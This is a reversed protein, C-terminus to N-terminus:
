LKSIEHNAECEKLRKIQFNLCQYGITGDKVEIESKCM